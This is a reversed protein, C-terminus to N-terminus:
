LYQMFNGPTLDLAEHCSTLM